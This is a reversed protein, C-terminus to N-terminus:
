EHPVSEDEDGDNDYFDIDVQHEDKENNRWTIRLILEIKLPNMLRFGRLLTKFTMDPEALANSLNNRRSSKDSNTAISNRPDNLYKQMLAEAANADVKKNFLIVRWLKSLAGEAKEVGKFPSSLLNKFDHRM